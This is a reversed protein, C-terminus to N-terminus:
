WSRRRGRVQYAPTNAVILCGLAHEAACRAALAGLAGSIGRSNTLLLAAVGARRARAALRPLAAAFRCRHQRRPADYPIPRRRFWSPLTGHCVYIDPARRPPPPPPSRVFSRVCARQAFGGDADVRLLAAGLVEVRPRATGNALGVRLADAIGDLRVLGHSRKGARESEVLGDCVAAATAADAGSAALGSVVTVVGHSTVTM